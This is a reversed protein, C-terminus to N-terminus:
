PSMWLMPQRWQKQSPDFHYAVAALRGKVFEFALQGHETNFYGVGTGSEPDGEILHWDGLFAKKLSPEAVIDRARAGTTLAGVVPRRKGGYPKPPPLACRLVIPVFDIETEEFGEIACAVQPLEEARYKVGHEDTWAERTAGDYNDTRLKAVGQIADGGAYIPYGYLYPVPVGGAGDDLTVVRVVPAAADDRVKTTEWPMEVVVPRRAGGAGGEDASKSGRSFVACASAVVSSCLALM